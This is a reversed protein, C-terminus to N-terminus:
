HHCSYLKLSSDPLGSM